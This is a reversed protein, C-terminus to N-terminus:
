VIIYILIFLIILLMISTLLYEIIQRRKLKSLYGSACIIMYFHLFYYHRPVNIVAIIVLLHLLLLPYFFIKEQNSKKSFLSYLIYAPAIFLLSYNLVGMIDGWDKIVLSFSLPMITSFIWTLPLKYLQKISDVRVLNINGTHERGLGMYIDLRNILLHINDILVIKIFLVGIIGVIVFGLKRMKKNKKYIKLFVVISLVGFVFLPNGNRLWEQPITFLLFLVINIEGTRYYKIILYLSSALLLVILSDKFLFSSMIVHYPLLAFLKGSIRAAKVGYLEKSILYVPIVTLVSFSANVIRLFVVSSTIYYLVANLRFYLHAVAIGGRDLDAYKFANFDIIKSAVSKYAKAYMEYYYDDTYLYEGLKDKLLHILLITFIRLLLGIAIYIYLRKKEDECLNDSKIQMNFTSM